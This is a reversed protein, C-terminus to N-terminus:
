TPSPVGQLTANTGLEWRNRSQGLAQAHHTLTFWAARTHPSPQALLLCNSGEIVPDPCWWGEMMCM